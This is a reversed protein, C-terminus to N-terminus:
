DGTNRVLRNSRTGPRQLGLVVTSGPVGLIHPRIYDIDQGLTL